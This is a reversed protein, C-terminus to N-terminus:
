KVAEYPRVAAMASNLHHRFYETEGNTECHHLVLRELRDFTRPGSARWWELALQAIFSTGMDWPSVTAM